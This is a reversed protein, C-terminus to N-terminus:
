PELVRVDMARGGQTTRVFDFEVVEGAVLTKYDADAQIASWHVFVDERGDDRVLFGFGRGTDFWKVTGRMVGKQAATVM